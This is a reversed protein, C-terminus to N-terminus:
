RAFASYNLALHNASNWLSGLAYDSLIQLWCRGLIALFIYKVLMVATNFSLGYLKLFINLRLPVLSVHASCSCWSIVFLFEQDPAREM